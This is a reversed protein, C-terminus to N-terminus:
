NLYFPVNTKVEGNQNNKKFTVESTDSKGQNKVNQDEIKKFKDEVKVINRMGCQEDQVPDVSANHELDALGLTAMAEFEQPEEEPQREVVLSRCRRGWSEHIQTQWEHLTAEHYIM